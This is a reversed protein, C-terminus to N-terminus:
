AAADRPVIAIDELSIRIDISAGAEFVENGATRATLPGGTLGDPRL